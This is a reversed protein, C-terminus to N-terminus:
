YHQLMEAACHVVPIGGDDVAEGGLAGYDEHVVAADALATSFKSGSMRALGVIDDSKETNQAKLLDVKKPKRHRPTNRLHHRQISRLQHM